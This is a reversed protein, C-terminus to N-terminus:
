RRQDLVERVKQALATPTFPKQLFAFEAELVGHRVVADDTYGSVFLVRVGPRVAALREALQRGGLHPMVVDSVLLDIPGPHETAVRVAERGDGAELVTYGYSRLVNGALARLADEDEVLLVTESGRPVAHLGPASKGAPPREATAPLYVKFATGRGAESYVDICGGSQTVVGHVVALGLGTGRGPGKTTFFPEFVRARTQPDMGTGTDSVALLVYAGPRAGPHAAAYGEDLTVNRTEITLRGGRPMADRANVALNLLAQELQGPDARVPALAPDLAVALVVDEGILRRLMRETDAVVGNLDLVKPELVQQRSFMLLQRTLAGAREGAKHIEALLDWAPDGPALGGLLLTSYGTIVTLLNNFDHAVGGALTGIAEMKQAQRFQEELRRRATVDHSVGILRTVQGRPDAEPEVRRQVWKVEGGVVIRHEMEFPEGALAARVAAEVRPRDDPHALAMLDALRHPGPAWGFLRTAEGSALVTGDAVTLTWSGFHAMAEARRLLEESHRLAADAQKRRTNDRAIGIVGVVQGHEDRHPAKSVMFTRTVGAATLEDEETVAVGSGMVRRDQEQVARASAPDFLEADDRGLVGAVTTGLFRATAENCLVYRGDRDKMFVADTTGDIVARLLEESRRLEGEVRRRETVDYSLAIRTGDSLLIVTGAVDVTQGDPRRIKFDAWGGTATTVFERAQQRAAPDAIAEAYIDRGQDRLERLTWGFVREWARNVLLLRGDPGFFNIAIPANDFIKQLVEAQKRVEDEAHKRDTVDMVTGILRTARGAEDYFTRARATVWHVSGDPWVIRYDQTITPRGAVAAEVERRVGDRDEPHVLGVWEEFSLNATGPPLGLVRQLPNSLSVRDTRFDMEGTGIRAAEFALEMREEAGKAAGEARKRETVDRCATLAHPRDRYRLLAASTELWRWQGGADRARWVLRDTGGALVAAWWRRGAEVDEPHAFEFLAAPVRGYLREVSPSAYVIRGDLTHLCIFDNAHELLVHVLEDRDRSAPGAQEGGARDRSLDSDGM